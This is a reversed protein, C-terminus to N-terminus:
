QGAEFTVHGSRDQLTLQGAGNRARLSAPARKAAGSLRFGSGEQPNAFTEARLPAGDTGRTTATM